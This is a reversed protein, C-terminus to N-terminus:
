LLYDCFNDFLYFMRFISKISEFKENIYIALNLILRIFIIVGFSSVSSAVFLIMSINFSQPDCDFNIQNLSNCLIVSISLPKSRFIRLSNFFVFSTILPLYIVNRVEEYFFLLVVAILPLFWRKILINCCCHKKNRTNACKCM